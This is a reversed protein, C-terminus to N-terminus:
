PGVTVQLAAPTQLRQRYIAYRQEVEGVVDVHVVYDGHPLTEGFPIVQGITAHALVFHQYGIATARGNEAVALVVFTLDVDDATSNSVEVSGEIRSGTVHAPTKWVLKIADDVAIVFGKKVVQQPKGSDTVTVAFHFEGTRTPEGHLLGNDELALGPPLAGEVVRWHLPPVSDGRTELDVRYLARLYTKPLAPDTSITLGGSQPRAQSSSARAKAQQASLGPIFPAALLCVAAIWLFTSTALKKV